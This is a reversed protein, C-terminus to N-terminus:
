KITISLGFLTDSEKYEQLFERLDDIECDVIWYDDPCCKEYEAYNVKVVSITDVNSENIILANGKSDAFEFEFKDNYYVVLNYEKM